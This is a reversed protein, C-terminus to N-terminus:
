PVQTMAVKVEVSFFVFTFFKEGQRVQGRYWPSVPLKENLQLSFISTFLCLGVRESLLLYGKVNVHPAYDSKCQTICDVCTVDANKLILVLPLDAFM